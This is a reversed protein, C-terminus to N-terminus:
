LAEVLGLEELAAATIDPSSRFPQAATISARIEADSSGASRLKKAITRASDRIIEDDIHTEDVKEPDNGLDALLADLPITGEILSIVANVQDPAEGLAEAIVPHARDVAFRIRGDKQNRSWVPVPDSDVLKAGKHTYVHRSTYGLKEILSRLRERVARPPQASAKKVDIKWEADLSNPLDVRVRSLKTLETQRALRFWTGHIILRGSRYVYFGQNKLYGEQGGFKKWEAPPVKSHHPLTFAQIKISEGGYQIEEPPSWVTAEHNSRFPDFGSLPRGNASITIKPIGREGALFRHFVLELHSLAGDILLNANKRSADDSSEGVLRDLEQWVVLTGSDKIRDSYPIDDTDEVIELQWEDTEAVRDLNWRAANTKGNVRSMVTLKRCQSYSATKLGLGFRGLDNKPRAERPNQSGPRLAAYLESKSMGTGNDVIALVPDGGFMDSHIEIETAGATISNDIVDALAAELSYGFDRMGEILAAARPAAEVTKV